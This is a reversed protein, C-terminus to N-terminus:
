IHLEVGELLLCFILFVKDACKHLGQAQTRFATQDAKWVIAMKISNMANQTEGDVQVGVRLRALNGRAVLFDFLFICM